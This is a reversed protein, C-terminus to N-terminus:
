QNNYIRATSQIKFTATFNVSKGSVNRCIIRVKNKDFVCETNLMIGFNTFLTDANLVSSFGTFSREMGAMTFEYVKTEQDNLNVIQNFVKFLGYKIKFSSLNYTSPTAGLQMYNLGNGSIISGGSIDLIGNYGNNYIVDGTAVALDTDIIKPIDMGSTFNNLFLAFNQDNYFSSRKVLGGKVNEGISLNGKFDSNIINVNEIGNLSVSPLNGSIRLSSNKITIDKVALKYGPTNLRIGSQCNKADVNELNINSCNGWFTNEANRYNGQIDMFSAVSKAPDCTAVVNNIFVNSAAEIYFGKILFNKYEGGNVFVNYTNQGIYLGLCDAQVLGNIADELSAASTNNYNVFNFYVDKNYIDARYGLVSDVTGGLVHVNGCAVFHVPHALENRIYNAKFDCYNFYINECRGNKPNILNYSTPTDNVLPTGNWGGVFKFLSQKNWFGKCFRCKVLM